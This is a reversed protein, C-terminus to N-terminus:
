KTPNGWCDCKEGHWHVLRGKEDFSFGDDPMDVHTIYGARNFEFMYIMPFPNQNTHKQVSMVPGLRDAYDIAMWSDPKEVASEWRGFNKRVAVKGQEVDRMVAEFDTLSAELQVVASVFKPRSGPDCSPIIVQHLYTVDIPHEQLLRKVAPAKADGRYIEWSLWGCGVVFLLAYSCLNAFWVSRNVAAADIEKYSRRYFGRELRVSVFFTPVLLLTAAFAIPWASGGVPGIWAVGLAYLAYLAPSDPRWHWKQAVFILPSLTALELILMLGWALPVGALTSILNAKAAGGLAKGYSLSLQKRIVFAEIGIVPLLACVM